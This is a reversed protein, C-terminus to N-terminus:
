FFHKQLSTIDKHKGNKNFIFNKMCYIRFVTEEIEQYIRGWGDLVVVEKEREEPFLCASLFTLGSYVRTCMLVLECLVSLSVFIFLFLVWLFVFNSVM